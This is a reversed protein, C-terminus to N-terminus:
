CGVIRLRLGDREVLEWTLRQEWSREPRRDFLVLWGDGAGLQRCYAALQAEGEARSRPGRWLKLELPYRQGAYEVVVDVRRRGSAFERTVRGGGNVVRQLFAMLILLPAAEQYQYRAVWSEAHDRWFEQFARLLGDVDLRRGDMWRRELAPDLACQSTWSLARGIVEAYIPCAATLRGRDDALLGLDLCYRVDDDLLDIAHEEGILVPEIVRRVRPERLREILSDLHADRRLILAEIAAEAVAVTIARRHDRALQREVIERAIANVLWPQGRTREWVLDVVEPPFAQGTDDTHQQYLRAVEDRTFARLTLSDSAINFPSASGLTEREPRLSARWDRVDRMGVLALAHPFPMQDRLIYGQRVQRLLSLLTPGELCDVEDILVVLPRDCAASLGSLLRRLAASWEADDVAPLRKHLLPHCSAADRLAVLVAGIGAAADTVGQATEVSCYLARYRGGAELEAALELLLTTKGTQRQRKYVD